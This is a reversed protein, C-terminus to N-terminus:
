SAISDPSPPPALLRDIVTHLIHRFLELTDPDDAYTMGGGRAPIGSGLFGNISWLVIGLLAYPGLDAPAADGVRHAAFRLLPRMYRDEIETIDRADSAWRHVWLAMFDPNHAYFDLYADAIRHMAAGGGEGHAVAAEIKVFKLEAIRDMVRVYLARKGGTLQMVTSTPVGVADAILDMSTLDYGMGAFLRTAVDVVVEDTVAEGM